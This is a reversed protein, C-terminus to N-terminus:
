RKKGFFVYNDMVLPKGAGEKASVVECFFITHDQYQIYEKVECTLWAVSHDIYPLGDANISAKVEEIRNKNRGTGRGCMKAIEIQDTALVSLICKKSAILLDKTSHTNGVAIAVSHPRSSVPIVWAATMLNSTTEHCTGIVYVGSTVYDMAREITEM